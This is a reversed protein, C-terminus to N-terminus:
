TTESVVVVVCTEVRANGKRRTVKKTFVEHPLQVRRHGSSAETCVQPICPHADGHSKGLVVM